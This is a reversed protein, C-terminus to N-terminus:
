NRKERETKIKKMIKDDVQKKLTIILDIISFIKLTHTHTHM